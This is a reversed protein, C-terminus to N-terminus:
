EVQSDSDFTKTYWYGIEQYKTFEHRLDTMWEVLRIFGSVHYEGWSSMEMLKGEKEVPWGLNWILLQRILGRCCSQVHNIAERGFTISWVRWAKGRGLKMEVWGLNMVVHRTYQGWRRRSSSWPPWRWTKSKMRDVGKLNRPPRFENSWVRSKMGWREVERRRQTRRIEKKKKEEEGMGLQWMKEKSVLVKKGLQSTTNQCWGFLYVHAWFMNETWLSIISTPM